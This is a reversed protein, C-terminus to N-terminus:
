HKFDNAPIIGFLTRYIGDITDRGLRIELIDGFKQNCDTCIIKRLTHNNKFKGFAQPIVHEVKRFDSPKKDKLCYVCKM